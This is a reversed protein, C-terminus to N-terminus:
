EREVLALACRVTHVGLESHIRYVTSVFSDGPTIPIMSMMVWGIM